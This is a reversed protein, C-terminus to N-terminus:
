TRRLRGARAPPAYRYIAKGRVSALPVRGFHRSDTSEAPNDGMLLVGEAGVAAARKLISRQPDRPDAAAVIDGTHVAGSKWNVSRRM